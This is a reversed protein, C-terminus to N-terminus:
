KKAKKRKKRNREIWYRLEDAVSCFVATALAAAVSIIVGDIIERRGAPKVMNSSPKYTSM